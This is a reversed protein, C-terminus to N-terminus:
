MGVYLPFCLLVEECEARRCIQREWQNIETIDPTFVTVTQSNNLLLCAVQFVLFRSYALSLRKSGAQSPM